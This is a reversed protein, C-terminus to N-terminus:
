ESPMASGSQRPAPAIGGAPLDQYKKVRLDEVLGFYHNRADVFFHVLGRVLQAVDFSAGENGLLQLSKGSKGPLAQGSSGQDSKEGLEKESEVGEKKHFSNDNM